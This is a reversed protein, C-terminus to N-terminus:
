VTTTADAECCPLDAVHICTDGGKRTEKGILDGCLMAETRKKINLKGSSTKGDGSLM